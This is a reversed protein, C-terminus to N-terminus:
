VLSFGSEDFQLRQGTFLEIFLAPQGDVLGQVPIGTVLPHRKLIAEWIAAFDKGAQRANRCAELLQPASQAM